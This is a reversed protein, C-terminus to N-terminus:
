KAKRLKRQYMILRNIPLYAGGETTDAVLLFPGM